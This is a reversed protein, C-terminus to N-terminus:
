RFLREPHEADKKMEDASRYEGDVARLYLQLLAPYRNWDYHDPFIPYKDAAMGTAACYLTKGLAYLDDTEDARHHKNEIYFGPTGAFRTPRRPSILGPDGLCWEGKIKLINGPKVDRHVLGKGHIYSLADLVSAAVKLLEAEDLDNRRIRNNLTHPVYPDSGLADALPMAYYVCHEATDVSEIPVTHHGGDFATKVLFMGGFELDFARHEEESAPTFVKLARFNGITDVALFVEGFGGRDIIGVLRWYGLRKERIWPPQDTGDPLPSVWRPTDFLEPVELM